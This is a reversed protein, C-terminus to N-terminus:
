LNIGWQPDELDANPLLCSPPPFHKRVREEFIRCRRVLFPHDDRWPTYIDSDLVSPYREQIFDLLVSPWVFAWKYGRRSYKRCAHEPTLKTGHWSARDLKKELPRVRKGIWQEVRSRQLEASCRNVFPVFCPRPPPGVTVPLDRDVGKETVPAGGYLAAARFWRMKSLRKLWRPSLESLSGRVGHLAIEHQMMNIVALTNGLHYASLGRIVDLLIEGPSNQFPRLFSLVIKPVLNGKRVDFVQSNLELWLRSFGTKEENVILGYRSTVQRWTGMFDFDGCFMCDDGNFRGVRTRDKCDRIDCAIDFCAKNLLCLLPFSVLNGMMSGRKIPHEVGSQSKWRLNRFSGKLIRREEATLEKTKAIEDVIVEVAPLYINDTAASYDGSIYSEGDRLDSAVVAFDGQTVDGRVCWGSRTIHDYLANHVPTLVRKVGASQMTVTRYKGKSKAVGRRVLSYDKSYESPACALTGGERAPVEFCGQVDPVYEGLFPEESCVRKEELRRGWGSLLERVRKRLENLHGESPLLSLPVDEAVHRDWEARAKTSAEKDCLNCSVDFLRKTSKILMSLRQYTRGKCPYRELCRQTWEKWGIQIQLCSAGRPLYHPIKFEMSM